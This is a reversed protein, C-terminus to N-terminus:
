QPKSGTPITMALHVAMPQTALPLGPLRRSGTGTPPPTSSSRMSRGPKLAIGGVDVVVKDSGGAAGATMKGSEFLVTGPHFGNPNTEVTTM